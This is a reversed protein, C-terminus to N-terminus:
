ACSRAVKRAAALTHATRVEDDDVSIRLTLSPDGFKDISGLVMKGATCTPLGALPELDVIEGPTISLSHVGWQRTSYDDRFEVYQATLHTLTPAQTLLHPLILDNLVDITLQTLTHSTNRFADSFRSFETAMRHFRFQLHTLQPVLSGLAQASGPVYVGDASVQRLSPLQAAQPVTAPFTILDLTTLNPLAAALDRLFATAADAQPRWTDEAQLHEPAKAAYRIKVDTIGASVGQLAAPILSLAAAIPLLEGVMILLQVPRGGREQLCARVAALQRDWAEPPTSPRPRLTLQAVTATELVWRKGASNATFLGSYVSVCRRGVKRGRLIVRKSAYRSIFQRQWPGPLDDAPVSYGPAPPCGLLLAGFSPQAPPPRTM